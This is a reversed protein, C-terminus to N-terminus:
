GEQELAKRLKRLTRYLMMGVKSESLGMVQAIQPNTLEADFKLAVIDQERLHLRRLHSLVRALDPRQLLEDEPAPERPDQGRSHSALLDRAITFLRIEFAGEDSLPDVKAFAQRFAESALDETAKSDRIRGYIYAFVRPFYQRYSERLDQSLRSSAQLGAPVKAKRSPRPNGM